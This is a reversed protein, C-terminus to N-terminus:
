PGTREPFRSARTGERRARRKQQRPISRMLSESLSLDDGLHTREHRATGVVYKDLIRQYRVARVPDRHSPEFDRYMFGWTDLDDLIVRMATQALHAGQLELYWPPLFKLSYFAQRQQHELLRELTHRMNLEPRTRKLHYLHRFEWALLDAAQLGYTTRMNQFSPEPCLHQGFPGYAKLVRWFRKIHKKFEDQLSYVLWIGDPGCRDVELGFGWAMEQFCVFYPGVFGERLHPSFRHFDQITICTGYARLERSAIAALLDRMLARRRDETWGKFFQRSGAFDKMHFYEIGHRELAAKWDVGFGAWESPTGVYGCMSFFDDQGGVVGSEDAM